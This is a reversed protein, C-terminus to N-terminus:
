CQKIELFLTKQRNTCFTCFLAFIIKRQLASTKTCTLAPTRFIRLSKKLFISSTERHNHYAKGRVGSRPLGFPFRAVSVSQGPSAIKWTHSESAGLAASFCARQSVVQWDPRRLPYLSPLFLDHRT